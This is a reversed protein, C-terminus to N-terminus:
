ENEAKKRWIRYVALALILVLLGVLVTYLYQRMWQSRVAESQPKAVAEEYPIRIGRVLLRHSNIGYPTCTVLTVYDEERNIRLDSTDEPSIVKIQDVQYALTEGLVHLYFVDGREMWELDSFLKKGPLGTHASLVAHSGAGGVPLSSEALHGVGKELVDGGTGHYVNLKVDIAPIELACMMGDGYLNLLSEYEQASLAEGTEEVQFPDTLVAGAELLRSNYDRARQRQAELEEESMGQIIQEQGATVKEQRNEYLYNSIFPYAALGLGVTVIGLAIVSHVSIKM